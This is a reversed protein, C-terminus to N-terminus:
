HRAHSSVFTGSGAAQALRVLDHVTERMLERMKFDDFFTLRLKLFVKGLVAIGAITMNEGSLFAQLAVPEVTYVPWPAEANPDYTRVQACVAQLEKARREAPRLERLSRDSADYVYITAKGGISSYQLSTDLV